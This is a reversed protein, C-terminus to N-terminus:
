CTIKSICLDPSALYSDQRIEPVGPENELSTKGLSKLREESPKQIPQSTFGKNLLHAIYDPRLQNNNTESM